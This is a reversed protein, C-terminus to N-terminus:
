TTVSTYGAEDFWMSLLSLSVCLRHSSGLGLCRIKVPSVAQGSVSPLWGPPCGLLAFALAEFPLTPVPGPCYYCPLVLLAVSGM